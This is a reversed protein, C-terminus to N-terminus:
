RKWSLSRRSLVGCLMKVLFASFLGAVVFATSSLLDGRLVFFFAGCLYFYIAAAYSPPGDSCIYRSFSRDIKSMGFALAASFVFVGLLGFNVYGEGLFPMSINNFSYGLREAMEYGSGVPKDLWLIRPVYFFVVGLLQYGYTVFEVQIVRALQQYADFHERFFFEESPLFALSDFSEFYRFQDLFPFVIIISGILALSFVRGNRLWPLHVLLVPIYVFGVMYRAVGSPFVCLLLIVFLLSKLLLNDRKETVAYLYCFFPVLRVLMTLILFVSSTELASSRVEGIIGRIFLNLFVFNNVALLGFLCALSLFILLFSTKWSADLSRSAAPGRSEKEGRGSRHYVVAVLANSIFILANTVIFDYDSFGNGGWFVVGQKYQIWPIISFFVLSFVFYIRFLSVLASRAYALLVLSQLSLLFFTCGVLGFSLERASSFIVVFFALFSFFAFDFPNSKSASKLM